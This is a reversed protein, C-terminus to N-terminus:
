QQVYQSNNNSFIGSGSGVSMTGVDLYTQLKINFPPQQKFSLFSNEQPKDALSTNASKGPSLQSNVPGGLM